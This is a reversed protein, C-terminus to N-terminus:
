LLKYWNNNSFPWSFFMHALFGYFKICLGLGHMVFNQIFKTDNSDNEDLTLQYVCTTIDVWIM